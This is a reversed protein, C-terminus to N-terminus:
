DKDTKLTKRYLKEKKMETEYFHWLGNGVIGAYLIMGAARLSTGLKKHKSDIYFGAGLLSSGIVFSAVLLIGELKKM